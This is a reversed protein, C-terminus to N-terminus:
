IGADSTQPDASGDSLRMIRDFIDPVEFLANNDLRKANNRFKELRGDHLLLQVAEAINRFSRVVVGLENEEVWVSNYREQPMTRSNREIIVPLGMKLAESVSGPGPKGMFFDALRMYDSVSNTFGVTACREKGSLAQRLPENHGCIVITQVKPTSNQLRNVISLATKSGYGGFMILGTPIDPQLGLGERTLHPDARDRYFQPKLIMGSTRFIREPPYGMAEAQSVAMASGCVVFQEQREQWFHPPYDALDTMVTVYPVDAHIHRLARFMPGNFNPIVSVVLDPHSGRWHERLLDEIKQSNLRVIKQIVRLLASSGYTWGRKLFNNYLNQSQHGTLRYIPDMPKLLDQLNVLDVRWHPLRDAIVEKLATAANRHGGGADFFFIELTRHRATM